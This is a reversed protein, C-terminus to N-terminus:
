QGHYESFMATNEQYEKLAEFGQLTIEGRCQPVKKLGKPRRKMVIEPTVLAVTEVKAPEVTKTVPPHAALERAALEVHIAQIVRACAGAYDKEVKTQASLVGLRRTIDRKEDSESRSLLGGNRYARVNM